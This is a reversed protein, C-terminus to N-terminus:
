RDTLIALGEDALDTTAYGREGAVTTEEVLGAAVLEALQGHLDSECLATRDLLTRVSIPGRDVVALVLGLTRESHAALVLKRVPDSVGSAAATLPSEDDLVTCEEPDRSVSEGTEPDLLLWADASRERLLYRRGADDVVPQVRPALDAHRTPTESRLITESCRPM